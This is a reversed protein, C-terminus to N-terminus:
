NRFKYSTKYGQKINIIILSNIFLFILVAYQTVISKMKQRTRNNHKTYVTIKETQELIIKLFSSLNDNGGSYRLPTNFKM